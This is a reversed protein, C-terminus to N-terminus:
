EALSDAMSLDAGGIKRTLALLRPRRQFRERHVRAVVMRQGQTPIHLEAHGGEIPLQLALVAAAQRSHRNPHTIHLPDLADHPHAFRTVANPALAFCPPFNIPLSRLMLVPFSASLEVAVLLHGLEELADAAIELCLVEEKGTSM